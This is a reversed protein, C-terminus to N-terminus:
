TRSGCVRATWRSARSGTSSWASGPGRLHSVTALIRDVDPTVVCVCNEIEEGARDVCRCGERAAEEAEQAHLTTAWGTLALLAVMGTTKWRGLRM